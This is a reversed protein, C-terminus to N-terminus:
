PEVGPKERDSKENGPEERDSKKSVLNEADSKKNDREVGVTDAGDRGDDASDSNAAEPPEPPALAAALLQFSRSETAPEVVRESVRQAISWAVSERVAAAAPPAVRDAARLFPGVTYTERLDIVVVEPDPEKTLWRCLSSNGVWTEVTSVAGTIRSIVRVVTSSAAWDSANRGSASTSEAQTSNEAVGKGGTASNGTAVRRVSSRRFSKKARRLGAVFWSVTSSKRFSDRLSELVSM